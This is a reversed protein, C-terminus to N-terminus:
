FLSFIVYYACSIPLIYSDFFIDFFLSFVVQSLFPFRNSYCVNGRLPSSSSCFRLLIVGLVKEFFLHFLPTSLPVRIYYVSCATVPFSGRSAAPLVKFVIYHLCVFLGTIRSSSNLIFFRLSLSVLRFTLSCLSLDSNSILSM